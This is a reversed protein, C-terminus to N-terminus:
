MAIWICLKKGSLKITKTFEVGNGNVSLYYEGSDQKLAESFFLRGLERFTRINDAVFAVGDKTLDAAVDQTPGSYGFSLIFPDGINVIVTDVPGNASKAYIIGVSSAVIILSCFLLQM